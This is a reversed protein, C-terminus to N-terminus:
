RDTGTSGTAERWPAALTFRTRLPLDASSQGVLLEFEGAEAIWAQPADDFYALARMDLTLQVAQAQGADLHVKAFAKLEKDPRELSAALDRVYVQVVTSGARASTNKVTVAISLTEGPQLSAPTAVLDSLEFSAYGLGFGFPFLPQTGARDVHRYGTFLGERYEVKGGAGPYQVDRTLPHTPDDDLSRPFTQPLRGGPEAKGVLVDAIAHGAEQGPFWAQVVAPVADLWPMLVPGGTQLVVVTRPNARAVAHVLEDQRGPLDVGWRDEGETEWEATTGICVVAYDAAAAVAAAETVASPPLLRGFGIRIAHLPAVGPAFARPGYEAALEIAGAQLRRKCRAELSGLGAPVGGPRWGDWNDILLEDGLCLRSLGTSVLSLEYEGDEPATVVLSLRAHFAGASVGAPLQIWQAEAQHREERALVETGPAARFEITMATQPVPLYRDNDCGQAHTVRDSGLAARLGDLPSVQRHANIQASGGGMVRAVAANPGIVAVRSDAPLPLLGANKLLVMGEAGARRILARTDPYDIEQEAEDRVDRPTAFAATREVLRLMQLACQRVAAGVSADREAEALLSARAKAPGPMELDLGARASVGASHTGGWDSVVLGDFGWERRLIQELLRVHEGCFTGALRNYGTMILWPRAEKVVMEFPRLYLERLAREPIESSITDREFESENGVFHKPTAGVGQSQVGRVYAIALRGTLVPDESYNEFNRGNL